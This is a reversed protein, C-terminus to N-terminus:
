NAGKLRKQEEDYAALRALEEPTFDVEGPVVETESIIEGGGDAYQAPDEGPKWGSALLQVGQPSSPDIDGADTQALLDFYAQM